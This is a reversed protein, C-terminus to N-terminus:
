GARVPAALQDTAIREGDVGDELFQATAEDELTAEGARQDGRQRADLDREPIQLALCQLHWDVLQHSALEAIVDADIAVALDRGAHVHALDLPHHVLHQFGSEGRELDIEVDAGVSMGAALSAPVLLVLELHSGVAPLMVAHHLQGPHHHFGGARRHIDSGIEM